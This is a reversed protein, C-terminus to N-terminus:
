APVHKYFATENLAIANLSVLRQRAAEDQNPDGRLLSQGVLTIRAYCELAQQDRLQDSRLVVGSRTTDIRGGSCGNCRSVLPYWLVSPEDEKENRGLLTLDHFRTSGVRAARGCWSPEGADPAPRDVVSSPFRLVPCEALQSDFAAM